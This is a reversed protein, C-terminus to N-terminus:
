VLPKYYCNFLLNYCSLVNMNNHLSIVKFDRLTRRLSKVESRLGDVEAKLTEMEMTITSTFSEWESRSDNANRFTTNTNPSYSSPPV